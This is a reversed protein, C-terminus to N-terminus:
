LSGAATVLIVLNKKGVKWVVCSVGLIRKTVVCTIRMKKPSHGDRLLVLGTM